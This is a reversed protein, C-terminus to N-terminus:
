MGNLVWAMEFVIIYNLCNPYYQKFTEIIMKIFELDMNSLGTGDMDFFVTCKSLHIERQIREVWYVLVKLVESMDKAGKIHLKTKFILLPYGDMDKNHSFIVGDQLYDVRVNTENLDNAGFEQRWKCTSWLKDFSVKMDLDYMELFRICWLDENRVRDIDVRHFPVAIYSLIIFTFTLLLSAM